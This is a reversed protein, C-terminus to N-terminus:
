RRKWGLYDTLGSSRGTVRGTGQMPSRSGSAGNRPPPAAATAPAPTPAPPQRMEIRGIRITTQPAPIKPGPPAAPEPGPPAALKRTELPPPPTQREVRTETRVERSTETHMHDPPPAAPEIRAPKEANLAPEPADAAPREPTPGSGPTEPNAASRPPAAAMNAPRAADSEPMAREAPNAQQTPAAQEPQGPAASPRRAPPLDSVPSQRAASRPMEAAEEVLGSDQAEAQFRSQPRPRIAPQHNPAFRASLTDFLSSM